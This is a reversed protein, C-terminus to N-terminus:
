PPLSQPDQINLFPCPTPGTLPYPDLFCDTYWAVTENDTAYGNSTTVSAGAASCILIGPFVDATVNQGGLSANLGAAFWVPMSPLYCIVAYCASASPYGSSDNVNQQIAQGQTCPEYTPTWQANVAPVPVMVTTSLLLALPVLRRLM